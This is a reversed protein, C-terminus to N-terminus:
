YGRQRDVIGVIREGADCRRLNEVVVSVATEPQTMSAVHPTIAIKPHSWFRHSEPLPEPATVDVFAGSLQGTDLADLLAQHDLQPGRGVHVLSAGSPLKSFLDANLFNTTENTLPLLCVLIDAVALFAELEDHGAYCQVGDLSRRSRSWGSLPFGFAKLRELSAQALEGLGLIGVRRRSPPIVRIEQWIERRQQDLYTPLDRHLALVAMTVYESMAGRIGPEIMRVVPVHEPIAGLDFQDIGAGISFLVELNPFLGMLDEPPQWAALFRVDLPNGVDPWVHFPMEPMALAFHKAWEAGRAPDAKYVFAM